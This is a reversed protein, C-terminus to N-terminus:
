RGMAAYMDASREPLGLPFYDLYNLGLAACRSAAREAATVREDETAGRRALEVLAALKRDMESERVTRVM